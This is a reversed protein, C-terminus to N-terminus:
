CAPRVIRGRVVQQRGERRLAVMVQNVKQRSTDAVRALQTQSCRFPVARGREHPQGFREVLQDLAWHAREQPSLVALAHLRGAIRQIRASATALLWERVAPSAEMLPLMRSRRLVHVSCASATEAALAPQQSGLLDDAGIWQGPELVDILTSAAARGPHVLEVMGSRIGYCVDGAPGGLQLLRGAPVDWTTCAELVEPPATTATGTDDYAAAAAQLRM